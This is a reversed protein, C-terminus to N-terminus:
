PRTKVPHMIFRHVAQKLGSNEKIRQKLTKKRWISHRKKKKDEVLYDPIALSYVIFLGFLISWWGFSSMWNYATMLLAYIGVFICLKLPSPILLQMIRNLFSWNRRISLPVFLLDNEPANGILLPRILNATFLPKRCITSIYTRDFYSGNSIPKPVKEPKETVM